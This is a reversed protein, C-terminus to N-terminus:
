TLLGKTLGSEVKRRWSGPSSVHADAAVVHVPTGYKRCLAGETTLLPRVPEFIFFEVVPQSEM